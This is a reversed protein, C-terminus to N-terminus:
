AQDKCVVRDRFQASGALALIVDGITQIVKSDDLNPCLRTVEYELDDIDEGANFWRPLGNLLLLDDSPSLLSPEVKLIEAVKNRAAIINAFQIETGSYFTDFWVHDTVIPRVKLFAHRRDREWRRLILMLAATCVGLAVFITLIRILDMRNFSKATQSQIGVCEITGSKGMPYGEPLLGERSSSTSVF